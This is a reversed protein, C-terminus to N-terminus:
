AGKRRAMKEALAAAPKTAEELLKRDEDAKTELQVIQAKQKAVLAKLEEVQKMLDLVSVAVDGVKGGEDVPRINMQGDNMIEQLQAQNIMTLIPRMRKVPSGSSEDTYEEVPDANGLVVSVELWSSAWGRGACYYHPFKPRSPGRVLYRAKVTYESKKAAQM